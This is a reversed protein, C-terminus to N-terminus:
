DNNNYKYKYTISIINVLLIFLCSGFWSIPGNLIPILEYSWNWLVWVLTTTIAFWCFQCIISIFITMCGATLLNNSNM